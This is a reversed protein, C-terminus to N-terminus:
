EVPKMAGCGCYYGVLQQKYYSFEEVHPEVNVKIIEGPLCEAYDTCKCDDPTGNEIAEAKAAAMHAELGDKDDLDFIEGCSCQYCGKELTRWEHDVYQTEVVLVEKWKQTWTHVHTLGGELKEINLAARLIKQADNLDVKGDKNADAALSQMSSLEIINLAAKLAMQADSLDVKHDLNVDGLSFGGDINVIDEPKPEYPVPAETDASVISGTVLTLTLVATVLALIKRKM